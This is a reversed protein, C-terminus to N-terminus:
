QNRGLLLLHQAESRRPDEKMMIRGDVELLVRLALKM